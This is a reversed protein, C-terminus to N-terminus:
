PNAKPPGDGLLRAREFLRAIVRERQDGVFPDRNLLNFFRLGEAALWLIAKDPDFNTKKGWISEAMSDFHEEFPKMLEPNNAIVALLAVGMERTGCQAGLLAKLQAELESCNENKALRKQEAVSAIKANIHESLIAQILDNKTKFHYLLGGKSVSAEEAVADLTLHAAGEKQVLKEAAQIIRDRSSQRSM